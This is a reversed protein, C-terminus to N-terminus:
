LATLGLRWRFRAVRTCSFIANDMIYDHDAFVLATSATHDAHGPVNKRTQILKECIGPLMDCLCILHDLSNLYQAAHDTCRYSKIRRINVESAEISATTGTLGEGDVVLLEVDGVLDRHGNTYSHLPISPLM